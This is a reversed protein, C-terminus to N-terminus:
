GRLWFDPYDVVLGDAGIELERWFDCARSEYLYRRGEELCTYRQPNCVVAGACSGPM